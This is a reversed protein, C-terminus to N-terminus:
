RRVVVPTGLKVGDYFKRAMFAPLRICGHSAPYNPVDGAHLGYAGQFRLFYPMPAGMYTTGAPPSSKRTDVDAVVIERTGRKVYAGYVSSRHDEDKEIV